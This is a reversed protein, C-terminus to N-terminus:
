KIIFLRGYPETTIIFQSGDAVVVKLKNEKDYTEIDAIDMEETEKLVEFLRDKFEDHTMKIIGGNHVLVLGM